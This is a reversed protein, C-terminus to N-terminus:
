KVEPLTNTRVQKYPDGTVIITDDGTSVAREILDLDEFKQVSKKRDATLVYQNAAHYHLYSNCIITTTANARNDAEGIVEMTTFATCITCKGVANRGLTGCSKSKPIFDTCGVPTHFVVGSSIKQAHTAQV